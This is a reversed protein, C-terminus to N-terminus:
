DMPQYSALLNQEYSPRKGSGVRVMIMTGHPSTSLAVTDASELMMTFGMGLSYRTSYGRELTARALDSPSIGNGNDCILATVENESVWVNASGGNGHKIANTAAETICTELDDWRVDDLRRQVRLSNLKHRLETADVPHNLMSALDPPRNMMERIEHSDCLLLRGGTVALLVERNFAVRREESRVLDVNLRGLDGLAVRLRGVVTAITFTGIALAVVEITDRIEGVGGSYRHSFLFGYALFISATSAFYGGRLGLLGSAIAVPILYFITYPRAQVANDLVILGWTLLLLLAVVLLWAALPNRSLQALSAPRQPPNAAQAQSVSAFQSLSQSIM